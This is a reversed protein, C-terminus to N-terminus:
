GKRELYRRKREQRAIEKQRNKVKVLENERKVRKNSNDNLKQLVKFDITKREKNAGKVSVLVQDGIFYDEKGNMSLLSFTDQNYSYKGPLDKIRVKGEILNDLQVVFGTNSVEIITGVYNESVREKMFEACKMDDVTRELKDAIVERNSIHYCIETLFRNWIKINKSANKKDFFCDKIIRHLTLDAYRRIPSTFHVYFQEALGNHGKNVPSYKARSMCKVLNTNLM